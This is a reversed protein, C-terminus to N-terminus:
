RESTSLSSSCRRGMRCDGELVIRTCAGRRQRAQPTSCCRRRGLCRPAAPLARLVEALLGDMPEDVQLRGDFELAGDRRRRRYDRCQGAHLHARRCPCVWPTPWTPWATDHARSPRVSRSGWGQCDARADRRRCGGAEWRGRRVQLGLGLQSGARRVADMLRPGVSRAGCVDPPLSSGTIEEETMAALQEPCRAADAGKYCISAAATMRGVEVIMQEGDRVASITATASKGVRRARQRPTGHDVANSRLPLLAEVM